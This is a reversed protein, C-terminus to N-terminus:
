TNTTGESPRPGLPFISWRRHFASAASRTAARQHTPAFSCSNLDPQHGPSFDAFLTPVISDITPCPPCLRREIDKRQERDPQAHGRDVHHESELRISHPPEEASTEQREDIGDVDDSPRHQRFPGQAVDSCMREARQDHQEWGQSQHEADSQQARHEALPIENVEQGDYEGARSERQIIAKITKAGGAAPTYTVDEGFLELEQPVAAAAFMTEFNSPM